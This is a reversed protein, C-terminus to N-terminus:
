NGSKEEKIIKIIFRKQFMNPGGGELFQVYKTRKFINFTEM